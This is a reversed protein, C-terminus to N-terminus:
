QCTPFRFGRSTNPLPCPPVWLLVSHSQQVLGQSTSRDAGTKQGYGCHARGCRDDALATDAPVRVVGIIIRMARSDDNMLVVPFPTRALLEHELLVLAAAVPM